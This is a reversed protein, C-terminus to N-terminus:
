LPGARRRASRRASSTLKGTRLLLAMAIPVAVLVISRPEPLDTAQVQVNDLGWSEDSVQQLNWGIFEFQVADSAHPITYTLHYVSDGNWPDVLYGLTNNEAAGSRAAYDGAPYDEPYAQTPDYLSFTTSLLPTEGNLGFSWRDPGAWDNRNGDWSGVVYLDFSITLDSHAALGTLALQVDANAFSGLFTTCRVCGGPTTSTVSSSWEPGVGFQFDSFYLASGSSPVAAALWILATFRVSPHLIM